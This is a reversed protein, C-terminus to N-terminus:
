VKPPPPLLPRSPPPQLSIGRQNSRGAVAYRGVFEAMTVTEGSAEDWVEVDSMFAASLTKLGLQVALLLQEVLDKMHRWAIRAAQEQLREQRAANPYVRGFVGAKHLIEHITDTQATLKVPIEGLEAQQIAFRIGTPRGYKDWQQEFRTGGYRRVLAAIESISTDHDVTTTQYKIVQKSM